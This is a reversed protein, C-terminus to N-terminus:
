GVGAVDFRYCFLSFIGLVTKINVKWNRSVISRYYM